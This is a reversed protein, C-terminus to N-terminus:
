PAKQLSECSWGGLVAALESSKPKLTGVAFSGRPHNNSYVVEGKLASSLMCLPDGNKGGHTVERRLDGALQGCSTEM